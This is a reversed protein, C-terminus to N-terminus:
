SFPFMSITRSVNAVSVEEMGPMTTFGDFM